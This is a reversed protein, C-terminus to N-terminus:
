TECAIGQAELLERYATLADEGTLLEVRDAEWNNPRMEVIWGEGYPDAAALDPDAMVRENGRVLVGTVPAALPGIYKLSEIMAVSRGKAVEQGLAKSRVSIAVLSHRLLCYAVPTLGVRVLGGEVPRVWVHKEVLYYLEEPFHCGRITTM